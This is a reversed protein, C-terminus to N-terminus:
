PNVPPPPPVDKPPQPAMGKPPKNPKFHLECTGQIVKDGVTIQLQQGAPQGQCAQNFQEMMAKREARDKHSMPPKGDHPPKGESHLTSCATLSGMGILSAGVFIIKALNKM